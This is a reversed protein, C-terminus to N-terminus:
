GLDVLILIQSSRTVRFSDMVDYELHSSTQYEM